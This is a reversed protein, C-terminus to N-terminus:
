FGKPFPVQNVQVQSALEITSISDVKDFTGQHSYDCYNKEEKEGRFTLPPHWTCSNLKKLWVGNSNLSEPSVNTRFHLQSKNGSDYSFGYNFNLFLSCILSVLYLVNRNLM